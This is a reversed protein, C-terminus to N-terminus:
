PVKLEWGIAVLDRIVAAAFRVEPNAHAFEPLEELEDNKAADRVQRLYKLTVVSAQGWDTGVVGWGDAQWEFSRHKPINVAIEPSSPLGAVTSTAPSRTQM